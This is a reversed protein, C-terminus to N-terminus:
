KNMFINDRMIRSVTKKCVFHHLHVNILANVKKFVHFVNLVAIM